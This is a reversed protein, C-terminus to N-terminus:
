HVDEKSPLTEPTLVGQLVLKIRQMDPHAEDTTRIAHRFENLLVEFLSENAAIWLFVGLAELHPPPMGDETAPVVPPSFTRVEVGRDGGPSLLLAGCGPPLEFTIKDGEAPLRSLKAKVSV